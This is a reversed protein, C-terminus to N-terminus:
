TVVVVIGCISVTTMSISSFLDSSGMNPQSQHPGLVKFEM